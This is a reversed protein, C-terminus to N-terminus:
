TCTFEPHSKAFGCRKGPSSGDEQCDLSEGTKDLQRSQFQELLDRHLACSLTMGEIALRSSRDDHHAVVLTYTEVDLVM